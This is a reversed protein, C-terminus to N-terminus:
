QVKSNELQSYGASIFQHVFNPMTNNVTTQKHMLYLDVNSVDIDNLKFELFIMLNMLLIQYYRYLYFPHKPPEFISEGVRYRHIEYQIDFCCAKDEEAGYM